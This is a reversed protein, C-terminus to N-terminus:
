DEIESPLFEGPGWWPYPDRDITTTGEPRGYKDYYSTTEYGTIPPIPNYEEAPLINGDGVYQKAILDGSANYQKREQLKGSSNYYNEQRMQGGKYLFRMAAWGDPGERLKGDSDYLSEEIKHGNMDYKQHEELTGDERYYSVERLNGLDDFAKTAMLKGNNYYEHEIKMKAEALHTFLFCAVLLVGMFCMVKKISKM